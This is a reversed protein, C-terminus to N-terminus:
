CPVGNVTIETPVDARPARATWGFATVRGTPIVANWPMNTGTMAYPGDQAIKANWVAELTAPTPFTWRATWGNITPGNNTISIDASFGGPWSTFLYTCTVGSAAGAPAPLGAVLTVAAALAAAAVGPRMRPSRVRGTGAGTWAGM